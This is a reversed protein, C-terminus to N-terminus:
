SRLHMGNRYANEVREAIFASFGSVNFVMRGKNDMTFPTNGSDLFDEIAKKIVTQM